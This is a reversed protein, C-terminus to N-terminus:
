AIRRITQIRQLQCMIQQLGFDKKEGKGNQSRVDEENTMTGECGKVNLFLEFLNDQHRKKLINKENSITTEVVEEHDIEKEEDQTNEYEDDASFKYDGIIEHDTTELESFDEHFVKYEKGCLESKTQEKDLVMEQNSNEKKSRANLKQWLKDLTKQFNIEMKNKQVNRVNISVDDDEPVVAKVMKEENSTSKLTVDESGNTFNTNKKGVEIRVDSSCPPIHHEENEPSTIITNPTSSNRDIAHDHDDYERSGKEKTNDELRNSDVLVSRATKDENSTSQITDTVEPVYDPYSLEKGIEDLTKFNGGVSTTSKVENSPAGVVNEETSNNKQVTVIQSSTLHGDKCSLPQCQIINGSKDLTVLVNSFGGMENQSIFSGISHDASTPLKLATISATTPKDQLKIGSTSATTPKEQLKITTTSTRRSNDQLKVGSTSTKTSNETFNKAGHCGVYGQKHLAVSEGKRNQEQTSAILTGDPQHVIVSAQIFKTGCSSPLLTSHGEPLLFQAGNMQSLSVETAQVDQELNLVSGHLTSFSAPSQVITITGPQTYSLHRDNIPYSIVRTAPAQQQVEGTVISGVTQDPINSQM